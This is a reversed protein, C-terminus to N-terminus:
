NGVHTEDKMSAASARATESKGWDAEPDCWQTGEWRGDERGSAYGADWGERWIRKTIEGVKSEALALLQERDM